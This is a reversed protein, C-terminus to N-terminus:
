PNWFAGDNYIDTEISRVVEAINEATPNIAAPEDDVYVTVDASHYEGWEHSIEADPFHKLIRTDVEREYREEAEPQDHNEDCGYFGARDHQIKIEIKM